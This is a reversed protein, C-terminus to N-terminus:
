YKYEQFSGNIRNAFDEKYVKLDLINSSINEDINYNYQQNEKDSEDKIINKNYHHNFYNQSNNENDNGYTFNYETKNKNHTKRKPLQRKVLNKDLRVPLQAPIDDNLSSCSGSFNIGENISNDDVILRINRIDKKNEIKQKEEKTFHDNKPSVSRSLNKELSKSRKERLYNKYSFNLNNKSVYGCNKNKDKKSEVSGSHSLHSCEFQIDEENIYNNNSIINKNLNENINFNQFNMDSINSNELNIDSVQSQNIIPPIPLPKPIFNNNINININENININYPLDFLNKFKNFSIRGNIEKNIFRNFINKIFKDNYSVENRDFFAKLSDYTIYSYSKIEYFIDQIIFDNNSKIDLILDNLQRALEIEEIFIQLVSKQMNIDIDNNIENTDIKNNKYKKKFSKKYIYNSDSILLDLFEYFNLANDFDKDYFYFIYDIDTPTYIISFSNLYAIIDNKTIYVSNNKNLKFFFHIPNISYNSLIDQKLKNIKEEGVSITIFIQVLKQETEQSLM